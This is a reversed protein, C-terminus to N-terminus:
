FLANRTVHVSLADTLVNCIINVYYKLLELSSKTHSPQTDPQHSGVWMRGIKREDLKNKLNLM